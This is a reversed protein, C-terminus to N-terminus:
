DRLFLSVVVPLSGDAFILSTEFSKQLNENKMLEERADCDNVVLVASVGRHGGVGDM